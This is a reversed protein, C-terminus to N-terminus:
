GKATGRSALPYQTLNAGISIGLPRSLSLSLSSSTSLASPHPTSLALSRSEGVVPRGFRALVRLKQHLLYYSSNIDGGNGALQTTNTRARARARKYVRAHYTPRRRVAAAPNSGAVGSIKWAPHFSPASPAARQFMRPTQRRTCSCLRRTCANKRIHTCARMNTRTHQICAHLVRACVCGSGHSVHTPVCTRTYPRNLTATVTEATPSLPLSLSLSPFPFPSFTIHCKKGHADV